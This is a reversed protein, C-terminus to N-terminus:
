PLHQSTCASGANAFSWWWLRWWGLLGAVLGGLKVLSLLQQASALLSAIGAEGFHLAAQCAELLAVAYPLQGANPDACWLRSQLHKASAANLHL